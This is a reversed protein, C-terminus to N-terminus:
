FKNVNIVKEKKPKHIKNYISLCFCCRTFPSIDPLLFLLLIFQVVQDTAPVNFCKWSLLMFINELISNLAM